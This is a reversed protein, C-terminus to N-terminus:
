VWVWFITLAAVFLVTNVYVQKLVKGMSIDSCNNKAMYGHIICSYYLLLLGGFSIALIFGLYLM